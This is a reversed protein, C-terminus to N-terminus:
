SVEGVQKAATLLGNKRTGAENTTGLAKAAPLGTFSSM